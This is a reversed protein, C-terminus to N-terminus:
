AQTAVEFRWRIAGQAYTHQHHNQPPLPQGLNSAIERGCGECRYIGSGPAAAGPSHIQDFKADNSASLLQQYKYTAL